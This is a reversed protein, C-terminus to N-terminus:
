LPEVETDPPIPLWQITLWKGESDQEALLVIDVRRNQRRGVAFYNSNVPRTDAYGAVSLRDAPIERKDVLEHLVALARATSLEWNTPFRDRFKEPIPVNDTHGEIRVHSEFGRLLDAVSNLVKDASPDIEASGAEFLVSENLTLVIGENTTRVGVKRDLGNRKITNQVKRAAEETRYRRASSQPMFDENMNLTRRSMPEEGRYLVGLAGRLSGLVEKIKRNDLTSFSLLLVFFTLLLSMMDGYTVV